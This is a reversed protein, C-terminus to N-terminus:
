APVCLVVPRSRPAERATDLITRLHATWQEQSWGGSVALRLTALSFVQVSPALTALVLRCEDTAREASSGPATGLQAILPIGLGSARALRPAMTGLGPGAPSDPWWIAEQEARRQLPATGSVGAVTVPGVELFGFGLRALAPLAVANADLGP